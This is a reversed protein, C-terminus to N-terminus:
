ELCLDAPAPGEPRTRLFGLEECMVQRHQLQQLAQLPHTKVGNASPTQNTRMCGLASWSAWAAMRGLAAWGRAADPAVGPGQRHPSWLIVWWDGDGSRDSLTGAGAAAGGVTPPVAHPALDPSAGRQPESPDFLRLHPSFGPTAQRRRGTRCRSLHAVQSDQGSPPARSRTVPKVAALPSNQFDVRANRPSPQWAVPLAPPGAHQMWRRTYLAASRRTHPKNRLRLDDTGTLTQVLTDPGTVTHRRRRRRRRRCSGCGASPDEM